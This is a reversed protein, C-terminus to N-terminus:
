QPVSAFADRTLNEPEGDTCVVDDEIRIGGYPHLAEVRDWNIDRAFPKTRAERLLMDIFYIGPEITVVFDPELTRTLRLFPHGPPRPRKAGSEDMAFGSVDHVQLGILHGVGHPFFVSTLGSEVAGDPTAHILRADHLARAIKRHASLHIDVYDVTPRVQACLERQLSDVREILEAFEGAANAYSRTIDSAYGFYSAGADILFSLSRAPRDREQHQYHLVAGHRNLAVINSYPLDNDTQQTARLYEIHIDFESAGSRFAHEAARHGKVGITSARRMCELEFPTKRARVYHLQEILASPNVHLEGWAAFENQWDGIFASNRLQAIYARADQPNRIVEIQFMSAWFDTPVSGPQHWYDEPQLFLLTPRNGPRYLLWCESADNSPVWHKFHPNTKFPYPQDDLFQMYPRGGYIALADFGHQALARDTREQLTDLHDAYLNALM